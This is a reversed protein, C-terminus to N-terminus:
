WVATRLLRAAPLALRVHAPIPPAAAAAAAAQAAAEAAAAEHQQREKEPLGLLEDLLNITNAISRPEELREQGSGDAAEAGFANLTPM